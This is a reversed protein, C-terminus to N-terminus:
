LRNNVIIQRVPNRGTRSGTHRHPSAKSQAGKVSWVCYILGAGTFGCHFMSYTSPVVRNKEMCCRGSLPEFLNVSLLDLGSAPRCSEMSNVDGCPSVDEELQLPLM